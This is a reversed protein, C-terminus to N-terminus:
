HMKFYYIFDLLDFRYGNGSFNSINHPKSFLLTKTTPAFHLFNSLDTKMAAINTPRFQVPIFGMANAFLFQFNFLVNSRPEHKDLSSFNTLQRVKFSGSDRKIHFSYVVFEVPIAISDDTELIHL